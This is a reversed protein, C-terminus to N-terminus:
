ALGRLRRVTWEALAALCIAVFLAVPLWSRYSGGSLHDARWRQVWGELSDAPVAAGGSRTALFALKAWGEGAVSWAAGAELGTGHYDGFAEHDARGLGGGLQRTSAVSLGPDAVRASASSAAAVHLATRIPEGVFAFTYLGVRDPLLTARLAGPEDAASALALPEVQGDPRTLRLEPASDPDAGYVRVEVPALAAVETALLSLLLSDRLGGALWAVISGWFERHEAVRGAEIRWRWSERLGMAAARGRGVGRMALLVEGMDRGATAEGRAITVTGPGLGMVRQAMGRVPTRPLSALEAILSWEIEDGRVEGAELWGEGLGIGPLGRGGGADLVGGGRDAVFDELARLQSASLEAGPLLIVVDHEALEAATGPFAPSSDAAGTSTGVAGGGGVVLGRGLSIAVMVEGGSEELARAIFRSEATPPGSVILVRPPHAARVWAGVWASVAHASASDASAIQFGEGIPSAEVRWGQWGERTPRIRFAAGVEGAAGVELRVSDVAGAADVIRALVSDGPAGRLTFALAAARNARLDAPPTVRLRPPFPPLAAVIPAVGAATSLVELEALTPPVLAERVILAPPSEGV